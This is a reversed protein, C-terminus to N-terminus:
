RVPEMVADTMRCDCIVDDGCRRPSLDKTLCVQVALDFARAM